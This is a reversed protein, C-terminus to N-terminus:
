LGGVSKLRRNRDNMKELAKGNSMLKRIKEDLENVAQIKKYIDERRRKGSWITRRSFEEFLDGKIMLIAAQYAPNELLQAAYHGLGVDDTM